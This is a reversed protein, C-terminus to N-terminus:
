GCLVPKVLLTSLIIGSAILKDICLIGAHGVSVSNLQNNLTKVTGWLDTELDRVLSRFFSIILRQHTSPLFTSTNKLVTFALPSSLCFFFFFFRHIKEMEILYFALWTKSYIKGFPNQYNKPDIFQKM